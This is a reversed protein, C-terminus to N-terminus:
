KLQLRCATCLTTSGRENKNLKSAARGLKLRIVGLRIGWTLKATLKFRNPRTDGTDLETLPQGLLRLDRLLERYNTRDMVTM